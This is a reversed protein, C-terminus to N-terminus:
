EGLPLTQVRTPYSHNGKERGGPYSFPSIKRDWVRDVKWPGGELEKQSEIDREWLFSHNKPSNNQSFFHITHCVYTWVLSHVIVYSLLVERAALRGLGQLSQTM